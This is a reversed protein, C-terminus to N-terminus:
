FKIAKNDKIEPGSEDGYSDEVMGTGSFSGNAKRMGRGIAMPERFSKTIERGELNKKLIFKIAELDKTGFTKQNPRNKVYERALGKGENFFNIFEEATM